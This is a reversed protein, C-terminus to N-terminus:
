DMYFIHYKFIKNNFRMLYIIYKYLNLTVYPYANCANLDYFFTNRTHVKMSIGISERRYMLIVVNSWYYKLSKLRFSYIFFCIGDLHIFKHSSTTYLICNYAFVMHISYSSKLIQFLSLFLIM